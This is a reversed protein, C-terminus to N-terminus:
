STYIKNYYRPFAEALTKGGDFKHELLYSMTEKTFLEWSNFKRNYWNEFVTNLEFIILDSLCNSIAEMKEKAYKNNTNAFWSSFINYIVHETTTSNQIDDLIRTIPKMSNLGRFKWYDVENPFIRQIQNTVLYSLHSLVSEADQDSLIFNGKEIIKDSIESFKLAALFLKADNITPIRVGIGIPSGSASSFEKSYAYVQGAYRGFEMYDQYKKEIRDIRFKGMDTAEERKKTLRDYYWTLLTVASGSGLIITAVTQWVPTTEVLSM